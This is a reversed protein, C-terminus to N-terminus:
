SWIGWSSKENMQRAIWHGSILCFRYKVLSNSHYAQVGFHILSMREANSCSGVCPSTSHTLLINRANPTPFRTAHIPVDSTLCKALM